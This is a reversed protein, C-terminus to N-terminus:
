LKRPTLSDLKKVLDTIGSYRTFNGPSEPSTIRSWHRISNNNLVAENAQIISLPIDDESDSDAEVVVNDSEGNIDEVEDGSDHVISDNDSPINEIDIDEIELMFEARTM